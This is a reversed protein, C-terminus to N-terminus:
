VTGRGEPSGRKHRGGTLVADRRAHQRSHSATGAWLIAVTSDLRWRTWKMRREGLRPATQHLAKFREVIAPLDTRRCYASAAAVARWKASGGDIAPLVEAIRHGQGAGQQAKSCMKNRGSGDTWIWRAAETEVLKVENMRTAQKNVVM